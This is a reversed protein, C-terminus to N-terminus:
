RSFNLKSVRFVPNAVAKKKRRFRKTDNNKQSDLLLYLLM